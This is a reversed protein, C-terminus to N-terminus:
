QDGRGELRLQQIFDAAIRRVRAEQKASTLGRTNYLEAAIMVALEKARLDERDYDKGIAGSLYGDAASIQREIINNIVPDIEAFEIGLYDTVDQVSVILDM